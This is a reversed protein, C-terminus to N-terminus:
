AKLDIAQTPEDESRRRNRRRQGIRMDVLVPQQKQRRDVGRRAGARRERTPAALPTPEREAAAGAMGPALASGSAQSGVLGVPRTGGLAGVETAVDPRTVVRPPDSNIRM